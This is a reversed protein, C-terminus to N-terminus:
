GVVIIATAGAKVHTKVRLGAAAPQNHYDIGTGGAKIRTKVRLAAVGTVVTQNHNAASLGTHGATGGAKIHTKVKLGTAGGPTQPRTLPSTTAHAHPQTQM